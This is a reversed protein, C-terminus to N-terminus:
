EIWLNYKNLTEIHQSNGFFRKSAGENQLDGLFDENLTVGVKDLFGEKLMYYLLINKICGVSPNKINDHMPSIMWRFAEFATEMSEQVLAMYSDDCKKLFHDILQQDVKTMNANAGTYRDKYAEVVTNLVNETEEDLKIQLPQVQISRDQIKVEANSQPYLSAREWSGLEAESPVKKYRSMDQMIKFINSNYNYYLTEVFSTMKYREKEIDINCSKLKEDLLTLYTDSASSDYILNTLENFSSPLYEPDGSSTYGKLYNVCLMLLSLDIEETVAFAVNLIHVCRRFDENLQPKTSGLTYANISKINSVMSSVVEDGAPLGYSSFVHQVVERIAEDSNKEVPPLAGLAHEIDAVIQIYQKVKEDDAYAKHESSLQTSVVEATRHVAGNEQNEVSPSAECVKQSSEQKEEEIATFIKKGNKGVVYWKEPARHPEGLFIRYVIDGEKEIINGNKDWEVDPIDVCDADVDVTDNQISGEKSLEITRGDAGYSGDSNRLWQVGSINECGNNGKSNLSTIQIDRKSISTNENLTGTPISGSVIGNQLANGEVRVVSFPTNSQTGSLSHSPENMHGAEKGLSFNSQGVKM